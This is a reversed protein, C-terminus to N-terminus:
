FRVTSVARLRHPPVLPRQLHESDFERDPPTRVVFGNRHGVRERLGRAYWRRIRDLGLEGRAFREDDGTLNLFRFPTEIPAFAAEIRSACRRIPALEQANSSQHALLRSTRMGCM